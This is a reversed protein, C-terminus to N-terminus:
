NTLYDAIKESLVKISDSEFPSPVDAEALVELFDLSAPAKVLEM